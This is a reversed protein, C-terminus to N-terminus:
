RPEIVAKKSRGWAIFAALLAFGLNIPIAFMEGRSIHFALALLMVVIVGIAAWVTLQPKIRLASPLILGVAALFESVGIFRVLAAPIDGPWVMQAALEPIPSFTKSVGAMGFAGALIIQCIWLIINLARSPKKNSLNTATM